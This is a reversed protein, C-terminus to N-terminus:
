PCQIEMSMSSGSMESSFVKERVVSSIHVAIGRDLAKRDVAPMDVRCEQEAIEALQINVPADEIQANKHVARELVARETAGGKRPALKHIAGKGAALEDLVVEATFTREIVSSPIPAGLGCAFPQVPM